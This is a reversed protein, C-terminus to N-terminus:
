NRDSDEQRLELMAGLGEILAALAQRLGDEATDPSTIASALGETLGPVWAERFRKAIASSFCGELPCAVLLAVVALMPGRM